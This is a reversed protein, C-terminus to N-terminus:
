ADANTRTNSSQCLSSFNHMMYSCQVSADSLTVLRDFVEMHRM